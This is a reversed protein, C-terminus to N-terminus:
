QEVQIQRPKAEDAKPLTVRLVGDRYVAKVNGANVTRPLGISRTFRGFLRESRSADTGQPEATQKREGSIILAGDHISLSIDEKKMGPLEAHVVFNDKNEFLDIAPTWSNLADSGRVVQAFPEFIRNIEDRISTMQDVAAWNSQPLQFRALKM